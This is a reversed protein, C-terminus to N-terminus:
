YVCLTKKYVYRCFDEFKLSTEVHQILIQYLEFLDHENETVFNEFFQKTM